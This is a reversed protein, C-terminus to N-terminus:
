PASRSSSPGPAPGRRHSPSGPSLFIMAQACSFGAQPGAAVAVAAQPRGDHRRSRRDRDLGELAPLLVPREPARGLQGRVPDHDLQARARTLRNIGTLSSGASIAKTLRRPDSIQACSSSWTPPRRRARRRRRGLARAARPAARLRPRALARAVALRVDRASCLALAAARRRRGLRGPPMRPWTARTPFPSCRRVRHGARAGPHRPRRPLHGPRLGADDARLLAMRGPARQRAGPRAPCRCATGPRWCGSPADALGALAARLLRARSGPRDLAGGARAPGRGAAARRRRAAGVDAARRRARARALGRPYELQPFTGVM